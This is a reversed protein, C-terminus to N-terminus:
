RGLVYSKINEVTMDILRRRAERSAWAIHPTIFLKHANRVSLLPNDAAIPEATLVDLAAGAIRDEDIARALAAENVVGGRGMNLLYATPKMMRLRANDLLNLTKDNLPCHISVVDATQLLEELPLHQYGTGELNTGSTSYYIVKAGFAEALKAVQKGIAGLGIIGFLKHNLELYERGLHTFMRSAAYQGSKVYADFYASSHLLYLLMSFTCQAVSETSYGAVNKVTIGKRAAYPLDVNNMGTAVVCILKVEPCSDMVERDILVKNTMVVDHGKIREVREAPETVDYATYEGLSSIKVLSDVDGVTAADLFVIKTPKDM